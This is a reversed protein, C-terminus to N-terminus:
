WKINSGTKESSTKRADLTELSRYNILEKLISKGKETIRYEQNKKSTILNAEKFQNLINTKLEYKRGSYGTIELLEEINRNKDKVANLARIKYETFIIPPWEYQQTKDKM